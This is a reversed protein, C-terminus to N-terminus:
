KGGAKTLAEPMELQKGIEIALNYTDDNYELHELQCDSLYLSLFEVLKPASAILQANAEIIGGAILEDGAYVVPEKTVPLHRVEWKGKTYNKM